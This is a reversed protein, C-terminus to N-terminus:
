LNAKDLQVNDVWATGTGDIVLNLKVLDPKEGKKLLFPIQQTSWDNTGSLPAVLGRSFYEGKEPFRCWMELYAKGKINKTKVKARYFLKANDVDLNEVEFLKFTTPKRATVKLAGNGDPSNKKDVKVNSKTVVETKKSCDFSKLAPEKALAYGTTFLCLSLAAVYLKQAQLKM